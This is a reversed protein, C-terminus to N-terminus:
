ISQKPTLVPPNQSLKKAKKRERKLRAVELKDLDHQTKPRDPDYRYRQGSRRRRFLSGYEAPLHLSQGASAMIAVALPLAGNRRRESGPSAPCDRVASANPAEDHRNETGNKM